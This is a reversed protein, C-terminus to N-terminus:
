LYAIKDTILLKKHISKHTASMFGSMFAIGEKYIEDKKRM